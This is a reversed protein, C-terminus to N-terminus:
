TVQAEVYLTFIRYVGNYILIVMIHVVNRNWMKYIYIDQVYKNIRRETTHHIINYIINHSM